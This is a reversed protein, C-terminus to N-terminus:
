ACGVLDYDHGVCHKGGYTCGPQTCRAGGITVVHPQLPILPHDPRLLLEVPSRNGGAAGVRVRLLPPFLITLM